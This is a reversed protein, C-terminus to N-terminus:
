FKMINVSFSLSLFIVNGILKLMSSVQKEMEEGKNETGDEKNFMTAKETANLSEIIETVSDTVTPPESDHLTITKSEFKDVETVDETVDQIKSVLNVMEESEDISIRPTTSITKALHGIHSETM